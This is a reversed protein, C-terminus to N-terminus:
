SVQVKVVVENENSVQPISDESVVEIVVKPDDSFQSYVAAKQNKNIKFFGLRKEKVETADDVADRSDSKLETESELKASRTRFFSKKAKPEEQKAQDSSNVSKISSFM